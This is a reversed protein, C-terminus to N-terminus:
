WSTINVVILDLKGDGDVDAALLHNPNPPTPFDIKPGFSDTGLTGTTSINRYLSLTGAFVNVVALDPKGDGDLDAIVTQTPLDGAGVDVRSGLSSADLIGSSAFTVNFPASARATLGGVTVSPPAYTAGAPVTVVLETTSAATVAARVAGFYVINEAAVASFNAGNITVVTGIQGSVPSLSSIAPVPPSPPIQGSGSACLILFLLFSLVGSRNLHVRQRVNMNM